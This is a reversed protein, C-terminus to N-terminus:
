VCHAILLCAYFNVLFREFANIQSTSGRPNGVEWASYRRRNLYTISTASQMIGTELKREENGGGGRECVEQFETHV